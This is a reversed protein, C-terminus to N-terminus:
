EGLVGLDQVGRRGVALLRGRYPVATSLVEEVPSKRGAVTGAAVDVTRVVGNVGVLLAQAPSRWFGGFLSETVENPFYRFGMPALEAAGTLTRRADFNEYEAPETAPCKAVDDAAYLSGRLGHLLVGREGYPLAGFFSGTYPPKLLRWTEGGDTSHVLLGREGAIFLSGDGLKLLVNLHQSLVTFPFERATWTAGGDGTTFYLGYSGVAIGRQADAMYIDYLPRGTKGDFHQLKWSLGGDATKLISVDHGVAWGTKADLMRVRNIMSSIPSDVQTWATGDASHLIHGYAGVALLREGTNLIDLLISKPALPMKLAPRAVAFTDPAETEEQAFVTASSILLLAATSLRGNNGMDGGERLRFPPM